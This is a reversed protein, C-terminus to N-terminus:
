MIRVNAKALAVRGVTETKIVNKIRTYMVGIDKIHTYRSVEKCLVCGQTVIQRLNKKDLKMSDIKAIIHGSSYGDIHFWMDDPSASDIVHFNDEENEGVHYEVEQNLSAIFKNVTKMTKPNHISITTYLKYM